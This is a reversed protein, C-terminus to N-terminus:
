RQPWEYAGHVNGKGRRGYVPCAASRPRALTGCWGRSTATPQGGSTSSACSGATRAAPRGRRRAPRAPAHANRPDGRRDTATVSGRRVAPVGRQRSGGRQRASPRYRRGHEGRAATPVQALPDHVQEEVLRGYSDAQDAWYAARDLAVRATAELDAQELITMTM